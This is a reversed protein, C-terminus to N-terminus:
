RWVVDLGAMQLEHIVHAAHSQGLKSGDLGWGCICGEISKRQHQVLIQAAAESAEGGM